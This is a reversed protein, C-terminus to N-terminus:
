NMLNIVYHCHIFHEYKRNINTKLNSSWFVFHKLFASDIFSFKSQLFVSLIVLFNITQSGFSENYKTNDNKQKILHLLKIIPDTQSKQEIRKDCRLSLETFVSLDYLFIQTEYSNEVERQNSLYISDLQLTHGNSKLYIFNNLNRNAEVNSNIIHGILQITSESENCDNIIDVIFITVCKQIDDIEIKGFIFDRKSNETSKCYYFIKPIFIRVKM